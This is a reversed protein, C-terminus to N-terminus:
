EGIEGQYQALVDTEHSQQMLLSVVIYVAEDGLLM